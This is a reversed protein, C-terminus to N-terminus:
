ASVEATLEITCSDLITTTDSAAAIEATGTWTSIGVVTQTKTIQQPFTLWSGTTGTTLTGTSTTFRIRYNAGIGASTPNCWDGSPSGDGAAYTGDNTFSLSATADAPDLALKTETISAPLTISFSSYFEKWVGGVGVWGKTVTKWAGSVGVSISAIAKYAGGVGVNIAM